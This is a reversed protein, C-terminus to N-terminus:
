KKNVKMRKLIADINMRELPIKEELVVPNPIGCQRCVVTEDKTKPIYDFEHCCDACLYHPM